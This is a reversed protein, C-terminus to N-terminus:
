HMEVEADLNGWGKSIEEKLLCRVSNAAQTIDRRSSKISKSLTQTKVFQLGYRLTILIAVCSSVHKIFM